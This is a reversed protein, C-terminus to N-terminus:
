RGAPTPTDFLGPQGATTGREHALLTEKNALGGGYGVLKGNAGIVRHCPVIISIPNRGNALGVARSANANGVRAALEGYSITEGYPIATLEEWVKRQFTTGEPALPLDFTQREGAFYAAIQRKAEALVPTEREVGGPPLPPENMYLGTLATDNATLLLTGVPSEAYTYYANM